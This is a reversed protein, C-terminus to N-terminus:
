FRPHPYPLEQTLFIKDPSAPPAQKLLLFGRAFELTTTGQDNANLINRWLGDATQWYTEWSSGTRLGIRDAANVTNSKAWEASSGCTLNALQLPVPFRNFTIEPLSNGTHRTLARQEPVTGTFFLKGAPSAAPRTLSWARDIPLPSSASRAPADAAPTWKGSASNFWYNNWTVGNHFGIADATADTDAKQIQPELLSELTDAPAIEIIDGTAVTWNPALLSVSTPSADTTDVTLTAGSRNTILCHRGAQNGTIFRLWYSRTALSGADDWTIELTVSDASAATIACRHIANNELPKGLYYAGQGAPLDVRVYGEPKTCAYGADGVTILAAAPLPNV